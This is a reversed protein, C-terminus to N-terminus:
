FSDPLSNPDSEHLAGRSQSLSVLSLERLPSSIDLADFARTILRSNL